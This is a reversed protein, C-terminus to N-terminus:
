QKSVAEFRIGSQILFARLQEMQSRTVYVRFDLVGVPEEKKGAPEASEPLSAPIDPQKKERGAAMVREAEERAKAEREARMRNQEEEYLRRKEETAELRNREAMAQGLDYTQLFVEKMDGAYRSEVGNLIALGEDVRQILELIEEKISKMTKSVNTYEPRMVREFPLYGGIDHIHEDYFERIKATKEEGQRREYEKVQGDINEIAKQVINTLEKLESGFQEDPKLLQKRIETRKGTLADKLKNLKARDAKASRIMDDTYISEAYEQGVATLEERLEEYNWEIKQLFGGDLPNYIKLEM